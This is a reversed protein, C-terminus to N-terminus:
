RMGRARLLEDVMSAAKDKSDILGELTQLEIAGLIESFVPSPVLGFTEILDRGTIYRPATKRPLYEHEYFELIGKCIGITEDSGEPKAAADAIWVIVHAYIDEGVANLLRILAKKMSNLWNGGDQKFASIRMHNKVLAAALDTEKVSAKFRALITRVIETGENEHRYFSIHGDAMHEVTRYKGIDHLLVSLKVMAIKQASTKLWFQFNESFPLRPNNIISEAEQYAAMTHGFADLHHHRNQLLGRLRELEPILEFLLGTGCASRVVASSDRALFLMKLEAWLREAASGSILGRLARVADLTAQEITFGLEAAFRLARLLRVPDDALNDKSVMRIVKHEIDSLGGTVDTLDSSDFISVAIANATFDRSLLDDAISGGRLSTFDFICDGKVVRATPFREHLVVFAGRITNAFGRAISFPDGILAVDYDRSERNLILDRVTGGVVYAERCPGLSKRLTNIYPLTEIVAAAM